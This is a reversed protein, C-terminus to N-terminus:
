RERRLMSSNKFERKPSFPNSVMFHKLSILDESVYKKEERGKEEEGGTQARNLEWCLRCYVTIGMRLSGEALRRKTSLFPHPLSAHHHVGKVGSSELLPLHIESHLTLRPCM